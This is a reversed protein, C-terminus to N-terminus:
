ARPRAPTPGALTAAADAVSPPAPADKYRGLRDYIAAAAQHFGAPLGAAGFTVAIEEM